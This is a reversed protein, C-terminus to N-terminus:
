FLFESMEFCSAKIDLCYPIEVAWVGEIRLFVVYMSFGVFHNSAIWIFPRYHLYGSTKLHATYYWSLRFM